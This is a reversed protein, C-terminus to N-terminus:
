NTPGSPGEPASSAAAGGRPRGAPRARQRRGRHIVDPCVIEHEPGSVWAAALPRAWHRERVPSLSKTALLAVLPTPLATALGGSRDTAFELDAFSVSFLVPGLFRRREDPLPSERQCARAIPGDFLDEFM